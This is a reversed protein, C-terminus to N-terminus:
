GYIVECLVACQLLVDATDRDYNEAVLDSMHRPYKESMINLGRQIAALDLKHEDGESDKLYVARGKRFPLEAHWFRITTRKTDPRLDYYWYNSGGEFASVILDKVSELPIQTTITFTKTPMATKTPM